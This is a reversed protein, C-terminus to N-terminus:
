SLTWGVQDSGGGLYTLNLFKRSGGKGVLCVGVVARDETGGMEAGVGVWFGM